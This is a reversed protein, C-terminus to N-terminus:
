QFLEPGRCPPSLCVSQGQSPSLNWSMFVLNWSSKNLCEFTSLPCVCICLCVSMTLRSKNKKWFLSILSIFRWRKRRRKRNSGRSCLAVTFRKTENWNRLRYLRYSQESPPNAWRLAALLRLCVNM